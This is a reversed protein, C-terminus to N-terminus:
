ADGAFLPGGEAYDVVQASIIHRPNLVHNGPFVVGEGTGMSKALQVLVKRALAENAYAFSRTTDDIRVDVRWDM